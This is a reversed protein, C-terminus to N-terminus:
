KAVLSAMTRTQVSAPQGRGIVGCNFWTTRSAYPPGPREPVERNVPTGERLLAAANAKPAATRPM